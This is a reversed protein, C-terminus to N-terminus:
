PDVERCKKIVTGRPKKARATGSARAVSYSDARERRQNPHGQDKRREGRYIVDKQFRNGLFHVLDAAEFSAVVSRHACVDIPAHQLASNDYQRDARRYTGGEASDTTQERRDGATADLM